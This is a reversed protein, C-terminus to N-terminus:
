NFEGIAGGLILCAIAIPLVKVTKPMRMLWFLFIVSVFGALSTFFYRQWGRMPYSVLPQAM